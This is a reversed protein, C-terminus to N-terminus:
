NPNTFHKEYKLPQGEKWPCYTNCFEVRELLPPHTSRFLKFIPGPRPNALNGQQLVLFAEGAAKNNKTIELGFRDAQHEMCRSVYNSLPLTLFMFVNILLLLLPLSAIDYLHKFGFQKGYRRMMYNALRYVIYAIIFSLAAFYVLFWWIHHLVYHGMEHGMVFLIEQKTMAELTTDWLVIRNTAGFGVVYANLTKTDHSKDVEFVRGNEIGAKEALALIDQELEKDKMPGFKNFLPDIWIPQIFTLFFMIVIAVCASYLWWRKPSKKLLLYFIWVFSLAGIISILISIGYNQLFRWVSQTSLGYDHPRLFDTYLDLPFYILSYIAIFLLLYIAITFYWFKGKKQSFTSLKGSFGSVLFLIPILFSLAMSFFWLVNGSNYYRMAADSAEPVVVNACNAALIGSLLTDHM